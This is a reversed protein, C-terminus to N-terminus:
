VTTRGDPGRELGAMSGELLLLLSCSLRIEILFETLTDILPPSSSKSAKAPMTDSPKRGSCDCSGISGGVAVVGAVAGSGEDLTVSFGEGEGSVESGCDVAAGFRGELTEFGGRGCSDNASRCSPPIPGIWSDGPIDLVGLKALSFVAVVSDM